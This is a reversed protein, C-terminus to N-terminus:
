NEKYKITKLMVLIATDRTFRIRLKSPTNLTTYSQFPSMCHFHFQTKIKNSNLSMKSSRMVHGHTKFQAGLYPIVLRDVVGYLQFM